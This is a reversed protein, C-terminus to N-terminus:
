EEKKLVELTRKLNNSADPYSPNMQLAKEFEIKAKEMNGMAYYLAGLNNHTEESTPDLQLAREYADKAVEYDGM